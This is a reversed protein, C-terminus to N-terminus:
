DNGLITQIESLIEDLQDKSLWIGRIMLGSRDRLHQIDEIPNKDLLLLDARKGVEVTGFEEIQDLALVANITSMKLVDYNPIGMKHLFYLEDLLSLGPTQIDTTSVDTGATLKANARYLNLIIDRKLNFNNAGYKLVAKTKEKVDTELIKQIKKLRAKPTYRLVEPSLIFSTVSDKGLWNKVFTMATPCNWTTSRATKQAYDSGANLYVENEYKGHNKWEFYGTMHEISHMRDLADEIDVGNPVHGVVRMDLKQAEDTLAFFVEKSLDNYIKIFDYGAENHERVVEKAREDSVVYEIPGGNVGDIIPGAQYLNPGLIENNQIQEKLKLKAPQGFMDRVSTVGHTIFLLSWTSKIPQEDFLHVHMDTLGPMLFKGGGDIVQVNEYLMIDKAIQQITGNSVLVDHEELLISDMMTLINVDQILYTEPQNEESLRELLQDVRAAEKKNILQGSLNICISMSLLLLIIPKCTM